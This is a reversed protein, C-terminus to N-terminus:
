GGLRDLLERRRRRLAEVQAEIEMRETLESAADGGDQAADPASPGGETGLRRLTEDIDDIEARLAATDPETMGM